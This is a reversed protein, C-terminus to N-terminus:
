FREMFGIENVPYGIDNRIDKLLSDVREYENKDTMKSGEIISYRHRLITTIASMKLLEKLRLLVPFYEGIEDYHETFKDAFLQEPSIRMEDVSNRRLLEDDLDEGDDNSDEEDVEDVLKGQENLKMRHTRMQMAVDSFM